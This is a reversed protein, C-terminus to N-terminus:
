RNRDAHDAYKATGDAIELNLEEVNPGVVWLRIVERVQGIIAGLSQSRVASSKAQIGKDHGVLPTTRVCSEANLMGTPTTAIRVPM